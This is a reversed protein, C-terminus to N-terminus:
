SEGSQEQRAALRAKIREFSADNAEVASTILGRPAARAPPRVETLKRIFSEVHERDRCILTLDDYRTGADNAGMHFASARCGDIAKLLEDQTSDKLRAKILRRRKTTLKAEPHDMVTRWHDFVVSVDTETEREAETETEPPSDRLVNADPRVDRLEASRQTAFRLTRVRKRRNCKRCLPQLNSEDSTGGRSVPVVHDVEVKLRSGCKACAGGTSALVRERVEPSVHRSPWPARKPESGPLLFGKETLAALDVESVRLRWACEEADDPVVGDNEAALLWLMMLTGREAMSLSMFARDNLVSRHLKIWPPNRDKYHQFQQWNKVRM